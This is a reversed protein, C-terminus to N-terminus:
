GTTMACLSGGGAGPRRDDKGAVEEPKSGHGNAMLLRARVTGFRARPDGTNEAELALVELRMRDYYSLQVAEAPFPDEAAAVAAPDAGENVEPEAEAPETWGAPRLLDQAAGIDSM